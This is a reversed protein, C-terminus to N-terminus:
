GFVSCSEAAWQSSVISRVIFIQICCQLRPVTWEKSLQETAISALFAQGLLYLLARDDTNHPKHPSKQRSLQRVESKGGVYSM